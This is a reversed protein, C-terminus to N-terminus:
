SGTSQYRRVAMNWLLVATVLALGAVLPTLLATTVHLGSPLALNSHEIFLAAPFFNVFGVPVVWSMVFQIVGNYMSIPYLALREHALYTLRYLPSTQLTWFAVVGSGLYIAFEIALGSLTALVAFLALGVTWHVHLSIVAFSFYMVGAMFDGLGTLVVTEGFSAQYLVSLPRLLLRDLDGDRIREGINRIQVFFIVFIGHSLSRLGILLAIAPLTWGKLVQFHVLVIAILALQASQRVINTVMELVLNSRYQVASLYGARGLHWSLTAYRRIGTLM